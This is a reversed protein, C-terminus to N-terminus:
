TVIILTENADASRRELDEKQKQMGQLEHALRDKDESAKQAVVEAKTVQENKFSTPAKHFNDIDNLWQEQLKTLDELKSILTPGEEVPETMAQLDGPALARSLNLSKSALFKQIGLVEKRWYESEPPANPSSM